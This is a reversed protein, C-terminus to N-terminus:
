DRRFYCAAAPEAAAGPIPRCDFDSKRHYGPNSRFPKPGDLSWELKERIRSPRLAQVFDEMIRFGEHSPLSEIPVFRNEADEEIQQRLEDQEELDESLLIVAGTQTDFWYSHFGLGADHDELALQLESLDVPLHKM